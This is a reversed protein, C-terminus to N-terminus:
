RACWQSLDADWNSWKANEKAINDYDDKAFTKYWVDVKSGSTDSPTASAKVPSSAMIAFTVITILSGVSLLLGLTLKKFIGKMYIKM